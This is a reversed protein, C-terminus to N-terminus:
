AGIPDWSSKLTPTNRALETYQSHNQIVKADALLDSLENYREEIEKLKEHM